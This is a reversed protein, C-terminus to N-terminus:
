NRDQNKLARMQNSLQMPLLHKLILGILVSGGGGALAIALAWFMPNREHIPPYSHQYFFSGGLFILGMSIIIITILHINEQTLM